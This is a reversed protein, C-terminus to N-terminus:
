MNVRDRRNAKDLSRDTHRTGRPIHSHTKANTTNTVTTPANVAVASAARDKRRKDM